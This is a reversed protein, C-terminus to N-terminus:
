AIPGRSPDAIIVNRFIHVDPLVIRCFILAGVFSAAQDAATSHRSARVVFRSRELRGSGSSVRIDYSLCGPQRNRWFPQDYSALGSFM